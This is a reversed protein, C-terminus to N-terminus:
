VERTYGFELTILKKSYYDMIGYSGKMASFESSDIRGDGCLVIDKGNREIEKVIINRQGTLEQEM